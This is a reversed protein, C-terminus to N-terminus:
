PWSTPRSAMRARREALDVVQYSQEETAEFLVRWEGSLLEIKLDHDALLRELQDRDASGLAGLIQAEIERYLESPLQYAHCRM